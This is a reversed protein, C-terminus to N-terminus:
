PKTEARFTEVLGNMDAQASVSTIERMAQPLYQELNSAANLDRDHRTGCQPCIWCRDQLTLARNRYDCGPTSCLQSSPYFRDAVILETGHLVAKYQMQHRFEGFGVDLISRNLGAKQRVNKGPQDPSGRASATMGQVAMGEIVVAQNERCLRTTTKHLWDKRQHHINAHLGALRDNVRRLNNSVPLRTGAPVPQSGTIGAAVKAYALKRSAKRQLRGMRRALRALPRPTPLSTGDSLDISGTNLDVGMRERRQVPVRMSVDVEVVIAVAWRHARRSVTAGMIKGGFRLAETMRVLGVKPLQIRDGHVSFKDNAVYFSDVCKGKKKFRPPYALKIGQKKLAKRAMRDDPAARAGAKLATFFRDWARALHTFPQAHADRHISALWPFQAYKLANFQKKLAMATPKLGAAVQRKWEALGWNWTFRDTGCAQGFYRRVACTPDLTIQHAILM